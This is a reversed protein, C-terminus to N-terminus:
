INLIIGKNKVHMYIILFCLSPAAVTALGSWIISNYLTGYTLLLFILKTFGGILAVAFVYKYLMRAVFINVMIINIVYFPIQLVQIALYESIVGTRIPLPVLQFLVSCVSLIVFLLGIKKVHQGLDWSRESSLAPVITRTAGTAMLTMIAGVIRTSFGYSALNGESQNVLFLSDILPFTLVLAQASIIFFIQKTSTFDSIKYESSFRSTSDVLYYIVFQICSGITFSVLLTLANINSGLYIFGIIMLAPLFEFKSNDTRGKAMLRAGLFGSSIMVISCFVGVVVIEKSIHGNISLLYYSLLVALISLSYYIQKHKKAYMDGTRTLSPLILNDAISGMFGSVSIIVTTVLVLTDLEITTGLSELLTLEKLFGLSRAFLLYGVIRVFKNVEASTFINPLSM